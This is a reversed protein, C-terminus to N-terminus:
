RDFLVPRLWKECEEEAMAKRQAVATLQDRDIKGVSFYKADPHAFYWGSVSAAPTM